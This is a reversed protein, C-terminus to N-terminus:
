VNKVNFIEDILENSDKIVERPHKNNLIRKLENVIIEDTIQKEGYVLNYFLECAYAMLDDSNFNWNNDIKSLLSNEVFETANDLEMAVDLINKLIYRVKNEKTDDIKKFYRRYGVIYYSILEQITFKKNYISKLM